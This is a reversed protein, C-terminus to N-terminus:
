RPQNKKPIPIQAEETGVMLPAWQFAFTATERGNVPTDSRVLLWTSGTCRNVLIPGFPPVNGSYQTVDFCHTADSPAKGGEQALVALPLLAFLGAM